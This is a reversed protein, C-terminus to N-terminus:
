IPDCNWYYDGISSDWGATYCYWLSKSFSWGKSTKVNVQGGTLSEQDTNTLETFLTSEM